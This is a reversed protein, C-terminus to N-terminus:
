PNELAIKHKSGSEELDITKKGSLLSQKMILIQGYLSKICIRVQSAQLISELSFRLLLPLLQSKTHFLLFCALFSLSSGNFFRLHGAHCFFFSPSKRQKHLETWSQVSSASARSRLASYALHDCWTPRQWTSLSFVAVRSHLVEEARHSWLIKWVSHSLSSYLLSFQLPFRNSQQISPIHLISLFHAPSNVCHVTHSFHTNMTERFKTTHSCRDVRLSTYFALHFVPAWSERSNEFRISKLIVNAPHMCTVCDHNLSKLLYLVLKEALLRPLCVTRHLVRYLM